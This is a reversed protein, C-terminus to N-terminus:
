WQTFSGDPRFYEPRRNGIPETVEAIQRCKSPDFEVGLGPRDNFWWKGSKFDAWQPLHQANYNDGGYEFLVPGSFPAACHILAATSIPGTFHPILGVFHSECLVGIKVYETIGGVNPLTARVYDILQNEVLKNFDWRGGWQEGAAIPVKVHARLQPYSEVEDARLPDEVFYPALPELLTALRIADSLDFRTHFDIAWDGTPGVGERIEQCQAFTATIREHTNYINTTELDAPGTRFCRFGAAMTARAKERLSTPPGQIEAGNGTYDGASYCEIYKRSLGGLLQYLPIGLAKGKIDWLAMDLAGLAHLKERGAPYFDGRYMMQWLRDTNSPDQGILFAACNEILEKWGGEGIGTIGADTEVTVVNNSQSGLPNFKPPMYARVRTIKMKPLAATQEPAAHLLSAGVGGM